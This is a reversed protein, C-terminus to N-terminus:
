SLSVRLISLCLSLSGLQPPGSIARKIGQIIEEDSFKTSVRNAELQSELIKTAFNLNSFLMVRVCHHANRLGASAGLFCGGTRM